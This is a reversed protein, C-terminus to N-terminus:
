GNNKGFGHFEKVHDGAHHFALILDFMMVDFIYDYTIMSRNVDEYPINLSERYLKRLEWLDHAANNKDHTYLEDREPTIPYIVPEDVEQAMLDILMKAATDSVVSYGHDCKQVFFQMGSYAKKRLDIMKQFEPSDLRRQSRKVSEDHYKEVYAMKEPDESLIDRLTPIGGGLLFSINSM